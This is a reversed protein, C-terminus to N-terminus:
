LKTLRGTSDGFRETPAGMRDFLSLYLNMLPTDARKPFALHRGGERPFAATDVAVLQIIRNRFNLQHIRAALVAEIEDPFAAKLQEGLKEDM